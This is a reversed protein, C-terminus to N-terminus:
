CKHRGLDNKSRNQLMNQIAENEQVLGFVLGQLKEMSETKTFLSVVTTIILSGVFSWWSIYLFPEEIHFFSEKFAFLYGSIMIGGILGYLGGWRTTRKWLMGLLLIALTPGQFFSLMTQFYIYMGPFKGSLPATALGILLIILTVLRGVFLYHRDTENRVFYVQYIDKTFLTAASNLVSDVSSMLGAFFAAFVLGTLGPPLIEKIMM